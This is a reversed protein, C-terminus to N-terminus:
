LVRPGFEQACPMFAAAPLTAAAAAASATEVWEDTVDIMGQCGAVASLRARLNLLNLQCGRYHDSYLAKFSTDPSPKAAIVNYCM